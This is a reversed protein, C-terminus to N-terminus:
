CGHGIGRYAGGKGSRGPPLILRVVLLAGDGDYEGVQKLVKQTLTRVGAEGSRGSPLVPDVSWGDSSRTVSAFLFLRNTM